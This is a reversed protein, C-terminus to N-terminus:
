YFIIYSVTLQFLLSFIMIIISTKFHSNIKTNLLHHIHNKDALFPSKKSKLRLFVVRILDIIPYLFIIGLYKIINQDGSFSSEFVFVILLFPILLSGSDGMFVKVKKNLNFILTISVIILTFVILNLFTDNPQFFLIILSLNKITELHINSDIGDIFNYANIIAVILFITIIQSFMRSFMFEYGFISFVDIIYGIDILYKAAIIQFLFKLGFDVKYIDDYLGTTFLIAMPIFISFDFPQKNNIYLYLCYFFLILFLVTGGSRTAITEHSSRQNIEDLINKKLFFNRFFFNLIFSIIIVSIYIM